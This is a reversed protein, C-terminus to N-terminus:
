RKLQMGAGGGFKVVIGGVFLGTVIHVIKKEGELGTSRHNLEDQQVSTSCHQM